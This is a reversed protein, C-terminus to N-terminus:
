CRDFFELVMEKVRPKDDQSAPVWHIEPDTKFWTIQRKAYRRTDRKIRLTAETLDIKGLLYSVIHKYGVSQLPKLGPSYGRNLLARVEEVWGANIMGEIRSDIMRYLDERECHLGMKLLEYPNERFGHERHFLSLPKRTITYVELARITRFIDNPHIRSATEPDLLQLEQHLVEKGETEAKRYLAARVQLDGSPGRFLGRTLVKLYLGTGGAIFIPINQLHLRYIIEDAQKRFLAASYEQDPDLIDILHHAILRREEVSPKATGIDLGRYVQVSDASIIEGRFGLALNLALSTKGSATPGVIAM